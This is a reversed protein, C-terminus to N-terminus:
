GDNIVPLLNVVPREQLVSEVKELISNSIHWCVRKLM